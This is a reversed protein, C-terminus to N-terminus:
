ITFAALIENLENLKEQLKAIERETEAKSWTTTERKTIRNFTAYQGIVVGDKDKQDEITINVM